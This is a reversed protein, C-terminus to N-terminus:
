NFVGQGRAQAAGLPTIQSVSQDFPTRDSYLTREYSAIAMAIRAPTVDPTGFAENFLEPYSRGGIWTSLGSPINPSLALPKSFAVRAAVDNWNRGTHAMEASNVPPGLVQSELAAGNPLVVSGSIPDTFVQTARGDWFLSNSYGADVYSRSKRG